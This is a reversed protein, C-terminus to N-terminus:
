QTPYFDRIMQAIATANAAIMGENGYELEHVVPKRAHLLGPHTLADTIAQKFEAVHFGFSDWHQLAAGGWLLMSKGKIAKLDPLTNNNNQLESLVYQWGSFLARLEDQTKEEMKHLDPYPSASTDNWATILHSGDAHLAPNKIFNLFSMIKAVVDPTWWASNALVVAEARADSAGLTTAISAGKLSGVAAYKHVELLSLVEQAYGAFAKISVNENLTANCTLCDDSSGFGFYDFAVFAHTSHLEDMLYSFETTSRPHGHFLVLTAQASFDGGYAYHIQGHPTNHFARTAWPRSLVSSSAPSYGASAAAFLLSFAAIVIRMM